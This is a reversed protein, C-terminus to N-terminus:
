VEQQIFNQVTLSLRRAPPLPFLMVDSTALVM